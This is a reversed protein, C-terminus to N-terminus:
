RPLPVRHVHTRISLTALLVPTVAMLLLLALVIWSWPNGFNLTYGSRFRKRVFLAADDRNVYFIGGKWCRDPTPHSGSASLDMLYALVAMLVIVGLFLWIFEQPPGVVLSGVAILLHESTVEADFMFCRRGLGSFHRM